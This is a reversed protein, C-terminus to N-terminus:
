NQSELDWVWGRLNADSSTRKNGRGREMAQTINSVCAPCVRAEPGQVKWAKRQFKKGGHFIEGKLDRPLGEMGTLKFHSVKRREIGM